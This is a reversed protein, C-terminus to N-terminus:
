TGRSLGTALLGTISFCSNSRFRSSHPGNNEIRALCNLKAGLVICCWCSHVSVPTAFRFHMKILNYRETYFVDLSQKQSAEIAYYRSNIRTSGNAKQRTKPFWNGETGSFLPVNVSFCCTAVHLSKKQWINGTYFPEMLDDLQHLCRQIHRIYIAFM